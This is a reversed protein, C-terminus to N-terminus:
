RGGLTRAEKVDAANISGQNECPTCNGIRAGPEALSMDVVWGMDALAALSITSVPLIEPCPNGPEGSCGAMLERDIISFRWHGNPPGPGTSGNAVPVGETDYFDGGGLDLFAKYALPGVFHTDPPDARDAPGAYPNVLRSFWGEGTGFGLAKALLGRTSDYFEAPSTILGLESGISVLGFPTTIPNGEATEPGTGGGLGSTTMNPGADGISVNITRDDEALVQEWYALAADITRRDCESTRVRPEGYTVVIRGTRERPLEDLGPCGIQVFANTRNDVSHFGDSLRIVFGPSKTGSHGEVLGLLTLESGRITLDLLEREGNNRVSYTLADGDPDEYYENLDLTVAQGPELGSVNATHEVAVSQRNNAGYRCGAWLKCYSGRIWLGVAHGGWLDQSRRCQQVAIGGM